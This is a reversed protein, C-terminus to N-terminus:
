HKAEHKPDFLEKLNVGDQVEAGSVDITQNPTRGGLRKALVELRVAVATDYAAHQNARVCKRMERINIEIQKIVGNVALAVPDGDDKQARPPVNSKVADKLTMDGAEVKALLEPASKKVTEAQRVKHQTVGAKKAIVERTKGRPPSDAVEPKKAGQKLNQRQREKAAEKEADSWKLVLVAKQDDTLHRRLVNRSWIYESETVGNTAGFTMTVPEINLEKCARLRHRGDLLTREDLGLMIPEQQGHLEIDHKLKEFEDKPLHPFLEALPHIKYDYRYKAVTGTAMLEGKQKEPGRELAARRVELFKRARM